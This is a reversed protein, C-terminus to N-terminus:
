DAPAAGWDVQPYHGTAWAVRDVGPVAASFDTLQQVGSGDAAMRALASQDSNQPNLLFVISGGDPSFSGARAGMEPEYATLWRLGSGDPAVTAINANDDPTPHQSFLLVSGDPAWDHKWGIESPPSVRVAGTGDMNVVWLANDRGKCSLMTGDPSVNPDIGCAGTVQTNETGDLNEVWLDETVMDFRGHVIRKGDPMFSPDGECYDVGVTHGEPPHAPVERVDSGDANVLAIQCDNEAFVITRGDPSWDPNSAGPNDASARPEVHTIQRVDSGDSRITFLQTGNTTAAAFVILGDDGPYTAQTGPAAALSAAAALAIPISRRV